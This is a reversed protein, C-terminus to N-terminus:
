GVAALRTADIPREVAVADVVCAFVWIERVQGVVAVTEGPRVGVLQTCLAEAFRCGITRLRGDVQLNLLLTDRSRREVREVRGVIRIPRGGWQDEADVVNTRWATWLDVASITPLAAEVLCPSTEETSLPPSLTPQPRSPWLARLWNM